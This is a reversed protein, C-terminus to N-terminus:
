VLFSGMKEPCQTMSMGWFTLCLFVCVRYASTSGGLLGLALVEGGQPGLCHPSGDVNRLVRTETIVM